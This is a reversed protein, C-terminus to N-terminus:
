IFSSQVSQAVDAVEVGSFNNDKYIWAEARDSVMERVRNIIVDTKKLVNREQLTRILQLAYIRALPNADSLGALLLDQYDGASEPNSEAIRKLAYLIGPRFVQEEIYYVGALLPIVDAMKKPDASVIEGLIEPASWGIGGSEDSLSWLLKRVTERLFDYNSRVYISAVLGIAVIARWGVLTEKDYALRILVSLVKRNQLALTLVSEFDNNDLAVMVASKMQLQTLIHSGTKETSFMSQREKILCGDHSVQM